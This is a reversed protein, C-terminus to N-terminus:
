NKMPLGMKAHTIAMMMMSAPASDMVCNGIELYGSMAGGVTVM